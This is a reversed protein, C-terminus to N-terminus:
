NEMDGSWSFVTSVYEKIVDLNGELRSDSENWSLKDKSNTRRRSFHTPSEM